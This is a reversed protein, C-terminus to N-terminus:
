EQIDTSDYAGTMSPRGVMEALTVIRGTDPDRGCAMLPWRALACRTCTLDAAGKGILRPTTHADICLVLGCYNCPSLTTSAGAPHRAQDPTTAIVILDGPKLIRGDLKM